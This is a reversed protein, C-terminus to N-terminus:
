IREAKVTKKKNQKLMENIMPAKDISTVEYKRKSKYKMNENEYGKENWRTHINGRQIGGNWKKDEIEM